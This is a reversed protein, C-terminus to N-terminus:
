LPGGKEYIGDWGLINIRDAANGSFAIAATRGMGMVSRPISGGTPGGVWLNEDWKAVDWLSIGADAVPGPPQLFADVNYDYIPKINLAIARSLTGVTRLFGIRTNTAHPGLPQFSTLGRFQIPQGINGSIDTGDYEGDYLYVMGDPGGIYYAGNWEAASIMPVSEWFGWAKTNINQNYQYYDGSTPKPTVIQMFGDSPNDVIAWGLTDKTDEVDARLFRNVKKSPSGIDLNAVSGQLLDGLNTIGYVSLVYM